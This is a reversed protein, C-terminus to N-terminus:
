RSVDHQALGHAGSVGARRTCIPNPPIGGLFDGALFVAALFAVATFFVAGLFVGTM